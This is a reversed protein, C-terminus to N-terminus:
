PNTATAFLGSLEAHISDFRLKLDPDTLQKAIHQERQAQEITAENILNKLFTTNAIKSSAIQRTRADAVYSDLMDLSSAATEVMRSTTHAVTGVTAMVASGATWLNAM